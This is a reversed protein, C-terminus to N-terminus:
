DMTKKRKPPFKHLRTGRVCHGGPGRARRFSPSHKGTKVCNGLILVAPGGERRAIDLLPAIARSPKASDQEGIGEAMSDMSDLIIVDHDRYPFEAWAAANTLPPCKDRTIVNLTSLGASAGWARLRQKVVRAPNDRDLLLVRFGKLALWVGICHAFLTKGIGRPSFIQTVAEPYLVKNYLPEVADDISDDLFTAMPEAAWITSFPTSPTQAADLAAQFRAKFNEANNQQHLENPDKAGELTVVLAKGKWGIEKLRAVVGRLFAEGGADPERMVFLKPIKAVHELQICKAMNAGPIGLAPFGHNWLTWTDSEGEVVNLSGAAEADSLKWAGYPVIQGERADWRSGNKAVLATRVRDRPAPSGDMLRYPILVGESTNGLGLSRLFDPSLRKHHALDDVTIASSTWEPSKLLGRQHLWSRVGPKDSPDLGGIFAALQWANGAMGCPGCLWLNKKENIQLSPHHDDHKPNPCHYFREDGALRVPEGLSARAVDICQLDQRPAQSTTNTSM